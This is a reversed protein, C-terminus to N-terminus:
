TSAISLSPRLEEVAQAHPKQTLEGTETDVWADGNFIEKDPGDKPGFGLHSLAGERGLVTFVYKAGPQSRRVAVRHAQQRQRAERHPGERRASRRQRRRDREAGVLTSSSARTREQEFETVTTKTVKGDGDLEHGVSHGHRKHTDFYKEMREDHDALKKLLEPSPAEAASLATALVLTM